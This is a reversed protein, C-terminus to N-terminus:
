NGPSDIGPRPAAVAHFKYIAGNSGVVWGCDPALFFLRQLSARTKLSYDEWTEGGDRTRFLAGRNGAVWGERANLFFVDHLDEAVAAQAQRWKLGGDGTILITGGAGAACGNKADTFQVDYLTKAAGSTQEHWNEGADVTRLVVGGAGVTWATSADVASLGYLIKKVQAARQTKWTRGGDRTALILGTEGCAWGNRADAFHMRLVIEGAYRTLQDTKVSVPRALPSVRWYEGADTTAMLFSKETPFRNDTRNFLSYEGLLFGRQEDFFLIDRLMEHNPLLTKRWTAGGDDTSLVTSNSGVAWGRERSTFFVANLRALVGSSQADWAMTLSLPRAPAEPVQAHLLACLLVLFLAPITTTATKM